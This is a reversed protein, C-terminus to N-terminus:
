TSYIEMDWTFVGTFGTGSVERIGHFSDFDTVWFLLYVHGLDCHMM